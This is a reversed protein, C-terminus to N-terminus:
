SLQKSFKKLKSLALDKRLSSLYDLIIKGSLHDIEHQIVRALWGDVAIQKYNGVFDLFELKIKAPRPVDVQIEPVSLCGERAINMEESFETIKPNILYMPYFGAEREIDDDRKLDLVIIQKPVGVQIAALGVGVDHYMTDLMDQMFSQIKSTVEKVPLSVKKLIPSPAKVIPLVAM